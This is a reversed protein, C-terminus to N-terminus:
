AMEIKQFASLALDRDSVIPDKCPWEFGFSGYHIGTDANPHYESTQLYSVIACESLSLFGHAFGPPIYLAIPNAADIVTAHFAGYTQSDVRVDLVVDLIAGQNVFVIKTYEYPPRQLHMGRLVDKASSSFYYEKFHYELQHKKFFSVNYPKIFSGRHDRFENLRIVLLDQLPTTELHM